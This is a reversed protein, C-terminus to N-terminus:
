DAVDAEILPPEPIRPNQFWAVADRASAELSRAPQWGLEVTAKRGDFPTRKLCHWATEWCLRDSGTLEGALGGLALLPWPATFRPAPRGTIRALLQLFEMLWVNHHALIYREGNRGHMAAAILGEALERVDIFNLTTRAAAPFGKHLFDLVMRGTPTPLEDEPGLPSNPNVIVVPLGRAAYDLCIKEALWKSRRYQQSAPVSAPVDRETIPARHNALVSSSSIFVVKEVRAKWAAALVHETGAVNVAEMERRARRGFVYIAGLHFVIAADAITVPERLDGSQITAAEGFLERAKRPTRCLLEVSAGQALLARVLHRGM